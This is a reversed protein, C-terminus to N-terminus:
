PGRPEGFRSSEQTGVELHMVGPAVCPQVRGAVLTM